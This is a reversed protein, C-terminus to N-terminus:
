MCAIMQCNGDEWADVFYDLPVMVGCGDPNGSDNLIVMPEDPDSYDIGIVEVAHNVGDNPTYIGEGDVEGYWIEDADISVIVKGGAELCERIDDIDNNFTMENDVGYYDLIKNMNIVPTGGEETFWGNEEALDALEQAPVGAEQVPAEQASPDQAEAAALAAPPCLPGAATLLAALLAAFIQRQAQLKGM